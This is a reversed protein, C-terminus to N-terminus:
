DADASLAAVSAFTLSALSAVTRLNHWRNWPTEYRNRQATFAADTAGDPDFRELADNLPINGGITVGLVGVTYTGTATALWWGRKMYGSRFHVVAATGLALATGLFVALFLPNVIARNISQMTSVYSRDSVRALGPIVSVVWGFFLGAMLGSSVIAVGLLVIRANM